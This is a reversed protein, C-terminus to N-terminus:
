LVFLFQLMSMATFEVETKGVGIKALKQYQPLKKIPCIKKKKKKKQQSKPIEKGHFKWEYM